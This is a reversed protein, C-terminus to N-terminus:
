NKSLLRSFLLKEVSHYCANGLKLRSKIEEQISNQDALTTGLYKFEEVREFSNNDIKVSHGRGANRVRFNYIIVTITIIIVMIMMMMMVKMLVPCLAEAQCRGVVACRVVKWKHLVLLQWHLKLSRIIPPTDDSIHHAEYLYLIFNQYM